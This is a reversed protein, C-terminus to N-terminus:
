SENEDGTGPRIPVVTDGTGATSRPKRRPKGSSRCADLTGLTGVKGPSVGKAGKAGKVESKRTEAPPPSEGEPAKYPESPMRCTLCTEHRM